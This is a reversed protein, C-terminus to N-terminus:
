FTTLVLLPQCTVTSHTVLTRVENQCRRDDIVLCVWQLM